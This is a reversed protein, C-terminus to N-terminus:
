NKSANTEDEEIAKNMKKQIETTVYQLLEDAQLLAQRYAVV